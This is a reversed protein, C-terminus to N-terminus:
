PREAGPTGIARDARRSEALDVRWRVVIRTGAGAATDIEIAAGILRAREKMSSLGMGAATRAAKQDFGSGSDSVTLVLQGDAQRLSVKAAHAGSHKLCNQLGEQVIRYLALGVETPPVMQLEDSAFVVQLGTREAFALCELRLAEELGVAELSPPHLARSLTQAEGALTELESGIETVRRAEDPYAEDIRAAASGALMALGALRQTLDDHIERALRQREEEQARILELSLRLAEERSAILDRRVATRWRYTVLAIALVLGAIAWRFWAAEWIHPTVIVALSRSAEVWPGGPLRAQLRLEYEGPTLHAYSAQRLTGDDVWDDDFGQLRHRFTVAEPRLMEIASFKLRLAREDVDLRAPRSLDLTRNGAQAELVQVETPALEVEPLRGPHAVAIGTQTPYALRGDPLHTAAPFGWGNCEVDRLGDRRSLRMIPLDRLEGRRWSEYESALVRFLGENSSFWLGGYRDREISHLPTSPFGIRRRAASTDPDGHRIVGVHETALWLADDSGDAVATLSVEDRGALDERVWHQGELRFLGKDGGAFLRGKVDRHLFRISDLELGNRRGHLTREEGRVEVVLDSFGALWITGSADPDSYALRVIDEYPLGLPGLRTLADQEISVLGRDTGAWIREPRARDTALTRVRNSPLGDAMTLHRLVGEEPSWHLVGGEYSAIWLTDDEGALVATTEAVPLGEAAGIATLAGRRLRALGSSFTGIWLDGERDELWARVRWDDLGQGPPLVQRRDGRWRVLGVRHSFWLDGRDDVLLPKLGHASSIREWRSEGAMLRWVDTLCSTFVSGDRGLALGGGFCGPVPPLAEAVGSRIRWIGREETRAWVEDEHTSALARVRADALEGGIPAIEDDGPRLAWLGRLTAVWLTGEADERLDTVGLGEPLVDVRSDRVIRGGRLVRLGGDGFGVWLSGDAAIAIATVSNSPLGPTNASSWNAFSWGDFRSLGGSTAIWIAGDADQAIDRVWNGALGSERDWRELGFQSLGLALPREAQEQAASPGAPGLCIVLLLAVSGLRELTNEPSFQCRM